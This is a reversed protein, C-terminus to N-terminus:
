GEEPIKFDPKVSKLDDFSAVPNISEWMERSIWMDPELKHFCHHCVLCWKWEVDSAVELIIFPVIPENTMGSYPYKERTNIDKVIGCGNCTCNM